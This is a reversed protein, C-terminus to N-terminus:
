SLTGMGPDKKEKSSGLPLRLNRPPGQHLRSHDVQDFWPDLNTQHTISHCMITRCTTCCNPHILTRRVAFDHYQNAFLRLWIQVKQWANQCSWLCCTHQPDAPMPPCPNQVAFFFLLQARCHILPQVDDSQARIMCRYWLQFWAEKTIQLRLCSTNDGKGTMDHAHEM